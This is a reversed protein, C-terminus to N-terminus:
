LDHRRMTERCELYDTIATYIAVVVGIIFLIGFFLQWDM